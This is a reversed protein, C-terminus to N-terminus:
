PLRTVGLPPTPTREAPAKLYEILADIDQGGGKRDGSDKPFV